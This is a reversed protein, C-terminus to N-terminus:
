ALSLFINTQRWRVPDALFTRTLFHKQHENRFFIKKTVFINYILILAIKEMEFHYFFKESRGPTSLFFLGPHRCVLMNKLRAKNFSSDSTFLHYLIYKGKQAQLHIFYSFSSILFGLRNGECYFNRLQDIIWINFDVFIAVGSKQRKLSSFNKFRNLSIKM